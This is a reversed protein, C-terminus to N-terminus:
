KGTKKRGFGNLIDMDAKCLLSIFQFKYFLTPADFLMTMGFWDESQHPFRWRIGSDPLDYVTPASM